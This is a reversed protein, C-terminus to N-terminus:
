GKPYRALWYRYAKASVGGNYGNKDIDWSKWNTGHASMYYAAEANTLPDFLEKNQEIDFKERREPGLNGIMNIQFLGYSNDGTARNTNHSKPNGRSEKMVIAWATRLSEGRFGAEYLLEKLWIGREEASKPAKRQSAPVRGRSAKGERVKTAAPTPTPSTFVESTPKAAVQPKVEPSTQAQTVAVVAVALLAISMTRALTELSAKSVM